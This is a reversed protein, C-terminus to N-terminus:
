CVSLTVALLSLPPLKCRARGDKVTIGDYPQARVVDPKEFSNAAKANPGM